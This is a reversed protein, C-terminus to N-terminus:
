RDEVNGTETGIFQNSIQDVVILFSGRGRVGAYAGTGSLIAFGGEGVVHPSTTPFAVGKFHTFITGQQGVFQQDGSLRARDSNEIPVIAINDASSTGSDQFRGSIVFTGATSTPGTGHLNFGIFVDKEDSDEAAFAVRPVGVLGVAGASGAVKLVQRRSIRRDRM